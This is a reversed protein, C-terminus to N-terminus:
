KATNTNSTVTSSGTITVKHKRDSQAIKKDAANYAEVQLSYEGGEIEQPVKYTNEDVRVGVVPSPKYDKGVSYLSVKYYAADPYANWSLELDQGSVKAGSKPAVTKLDGKFLNTETVYFTEDPKLKYKKPIGGISAEFVYFNSDFVKVILGQYEKPPVGALLYEGDANTVSKFTKGGCEMTFSNLTECLKVEIKEAPKSNFLVKGWVNSTGSEPKAIEKGAPASDSVAYGSNTDEGKTTPPMNSNTKPANKEARLANVSYPSEETKKDCGLNFGAIATMLVFSFIPLNKRLMKKEEM